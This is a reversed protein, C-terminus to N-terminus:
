SLCKVRVGQKLARRIMDRTGAGGPAALVLDPKGEDIMQQNRILGAARKYRHWDAPFTKHAVRRHTAWVSAITDAGRAGGEIIVLTDGHQELLEDLANLLPDAKDTIGGYEDVGFDRGGCVLVRM